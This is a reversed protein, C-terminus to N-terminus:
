RDEEHLITDRSRHGRTDVAECRERAASRTRVLVIAPPTSSFKRRPLGRAAGVERQAPCTLAGDSGEEGADRASRPAQLDIIFSRFVGPGHASTWPRTSPDPPCHRDRIEPGCRAALDISVYPKFDHPTSRCRCQHMRQTPPATEPDATQISCRSSDSRCMTPQPSPPPHLATLVSVKKSEKQDDRMLNSDDGSEEETSGIPEGRM